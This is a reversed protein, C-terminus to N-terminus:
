ALHAKSVRAAREQLLPLFRRQLNGYALTTFVWNAVISTGTWILTLTFRSTEPAVVLWLLPVFWPWVLIELMAFYAGNAARDCKLGFWLGVWAVSYLDWIFIGVVCLLQLVLKPGDAPPANCFVMCLWFADYALAAIIPGRYLRRMALIQGRAIELVSLRTGWLLPLMETRRLDSLRNAADAAVVFKLTGHIFFLPGIAVEPREWPSGSLNMLLALGIVV